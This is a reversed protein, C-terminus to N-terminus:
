SKSAIAFFVKAYDAMGAKVADDYLMYYSTSVGRKRKELENLRVEYAKTHLLNEMLALVTAARHSALHRAHVLAHGNAAIEALWDPNALAHRAIEVAHTFDGPRYLPLTNHAPAFLDLIGHGECEEMLLAAGHAMAEFCRMNVEQMATQNLVIQTRPYIHAFPKDTVYLPHHLRFNTLFVKRHPITKPDLTGAFAVPIDRSAFDNKPSASMAFLPLWSACTEKQMLALHDKQAVFVHDFAHGYSYHWFHCYTDISYFLSACPLEEIRLFYPINSSDCYFVVDPVFSDTCVRKYLELANVPHSIVINLHRRHGATLVTHGAQKFAPVFMDNDLNLINM